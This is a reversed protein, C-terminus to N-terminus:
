NHQRLFTGGKNFKKGSRSFVGQDDLNLLPSLKKDKGWKTTKYVKTTTKSMRTEDKKKQKLGKKTSPYNTTTFKEYAKNAKDIRRDLKKIKRKSPM